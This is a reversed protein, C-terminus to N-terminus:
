KLIKSIEKIKDFNEKTKKIIEIKELEEINIQLEDEIEKATINRSSKLQPHLTKYIFYEECAEFWTPKADEHIGSIVQSLTQDPNDVMLQRVNDLAVIEDSFKKDSETTRNILKDDEPFSLFIKIDPNEQFFGITKSRELLLAEDARYNVKVLQESVTVESIKVYIFNWEGTVPNRERIPYGNVDLPWLTDGIPAMLEYSLWDIEKITNISLQEGYKLELM